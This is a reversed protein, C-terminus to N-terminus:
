NCLATVRDVEYNGSTQRIVTLLGKGDTAPWLATVTGGMALPASAPIAEQAPLEYARLSDSFAAGSGSAVVQAGSGCGSKFIAFDSGWDRAGNVPKMAGNELLQVKGDIGNMLWAVTGAARPVEAFSYFPPLDVGVSPAVVGTFYNRAANYFARVPTLPINETPTPSAPSSTPQTIPWPEDSAHCRITWGDAPHSPTTVAPDYTGSCENQGTYAIFGSGEPTPLLLARPDRSLQRHEALTYYKQHQWGGEKFSFVELAEPRVAILASGADLVALVSDDSTVGGSHFDIPLRERRLTMYDAAARTQRTGADAPVMVVRTENGQVIEAVWLRQRDNESLTIRIANASEGSTIIVGHDKLDKEILARIAPIDSSNISSNNRVILTAQAPGLVAAIREALASAPQNWEVAAPGAHLMMALMLVSVSGTVLRFLRM